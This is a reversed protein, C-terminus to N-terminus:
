DITLEYEFPSYGTIYVSEAKLKPLAGRLQTWDHGWRGPGFRISRNGTQYRGWGERLFWANEIDPDESVGTLSGGPRFGLEIAIPVDDTGSVSFRIRFGSGARSIRIVTDYHLYGSQARKEHAMEKWDGDGPVAAPSLPQIYSGTLSSRLIVEEGDFELHESKFQGKGFFAGAIRVADLIAEGCRFSFFNENDSFITASTMGERYRVVNAHPFRKEYSEPLAAPGPLEAHLEPELVFSLLNGTIRGDIFEGEPNISEIYRCVSGFFPNKELM